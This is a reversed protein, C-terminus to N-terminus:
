DLIDGSMSAKNLTLSKNTLNMDGTKKSNLSVLDKRNRNKNKNQVIIAKVDRVSSQLNGKRDNLDQNVSDYIGYLDFENVCHSVTSALRVISNVYANAKDDKEKDRDKNKNKDESGFNEGGKVLGHTSM